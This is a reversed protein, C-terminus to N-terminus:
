QVQYLHVILAPIAMSVLFFTFALAKIDSITMQYYTEDVQPQIDNQENISLKIIDCESKKINDIDIDVDLNKHFSGLSDSIKLGVSLYDSLEIRCFPLPVFVRKPLEHVYRVGDETDREPFLSWYIEIRSALSRVVDQKVARVLERLTSDDQVYVSSMVSGRVRSRGACEEVVVDQNEPLQGGGVQVLGVVTLRSSHDAAFEKVSAYRDQLVHWPKDDLLCTSRAVDDHFKRLFDAMLHRHRPRGDLLFSQDVDYQFSFSHWDLPRALVEVGPNGCKPITGTSSAPRRTKEPIERGGRGGQCVLAAGYEGQKVNMSQMDLLLKPSKGVFRGASLEDTDTCLHVILTMAGPCGGHLYRNRALEARLGRHVALLQGAAVPDALVDGPGVVFTGLVWMGGPLMRTVLRAHQRAELEPVAHVGSYHAAGVDVDCSGLAAAAAAAEDDDKSSPPPTRALHAVVFTRQWTKQGLVLGTTYSVGSALARLYSLLPEDLVVTHSAM